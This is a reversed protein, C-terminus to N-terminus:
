LCVVVPGGAGWYAMVNLDRSVVPFVQDAVQRHTDGARLWLQGYNGTYYLQRSGDATAATTHAGAVGPDIRTVAGTIVDQLFASDGAVGDSPAGVPEADAFLLTTEDVFRVDLNHASDSRVTGLSRIVEGTLNSVLRVERHTGTGTTAELSYTLDPSIARRSWGPSSPRLGIADGEGTDVDVLRFVSTVVSWDDFVIARDLSSDAALVDGRPGLGLLVKTASGSVVDYKTWREGDPVDAYPRILATEGDSSLRVDAGDGYIPGGLDRRDGTRLDVIAYQTLQAEDGGVFSRVLLRSGSGSLAVPYSDGLGFPRDACVLTTPGPGPDVPGPPTGCSGLVLAAAAAGLAWRWRVGGDIIASGVM